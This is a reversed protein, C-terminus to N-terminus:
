ANAWFRASLKTGSGYGGSFLSMGTFVGGVPKSAKRVMATLRMDNGADLSFGLRKRRRQAKTKM